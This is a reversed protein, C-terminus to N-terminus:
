DADAGGLEPYGPHTGDFRLVRSVVDASVHSLRRNEAFARARLRLLATPLDVGLQISIMGTAQHIEPRDEVAGDGHDGDGPSGDFGGPGAGEAKPASLTRAGIPGLDELLLDLAISALIIAEAGDRPDLGGPRTLYVAFAGFRAAGVRMPMVAMSRIGLLAAAPAFMPWRIESPDTLESLYIAPDGVLVDLSPGEGLTIQLEEGDRALDAAAVTEAGAAGVARIPVSVAAAAEKWRVGALRCLVDLSVPLQISEAHAYLARRM